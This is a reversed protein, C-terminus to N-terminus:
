LCAPAGVSSEADEADLSQSYEPCITLPNSQKSFKLAFNSQVTISLEIAGILYVFVTTATFM